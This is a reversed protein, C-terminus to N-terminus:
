EHPPIKFATGYIFGEDSSLNCRLNINFNLEDKQFLYFKDKFFNLHNNKAEENDYQFIYEDVFIMDNNRVNGIELAYVDENNPDNSLDIIFKGGSILGKASSVREMDYGYVQSNSLLNKLDENVIEFSKWFTVEVDNKINVSSGDSLFTNEEKLNQPFSEKNKKRTILIKNAAYEIYKKANEYGKILLNRINEKQNILNCLEDYHYYRKYQDMWEKSILYYEDFDDDSYRLNNLKNKLEQEYAYLLFLKKLELYDNEDCNEDVEIDTFNNTDKLIMEKESNLINDDTMIELKGNLGFDLVLSENEIYYNIGNDNQAKNLCILKWFEKNILVYQKGNMKVSKYLSFPCYFHAQDADPQYEKFRNNQRYKKIVNKANADNAMYIKDKIKEYDTFKKWYNIYKKDILYGEFTEKELDFNDANNQEERLFEEFAKYAKVTKLIFTYECEKYDPVNM